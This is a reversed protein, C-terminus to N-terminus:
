KASGTGGLKVKFPNEDTDNSAIRLEASRTGKATPKFQVKFTVAAGPTLKAKAPQTLIFDKANKGAASLKLGTLDTNGANRITFTLIRGAKGVVATGFAKSSNGSVLVTKVPQEVTIEPALAIGKGTAAFTFPNDTADNSAISITAARNGATTPKFTVTFTTSAGPILTTVLPQTNSFDGANTGTRSISLGTLNATGNNTITFVQPTGAVGSSVSGFDVTSTGNNIVSVGKTVHIDSVAVENDVTLDVPTSTVDGALNTIVVTYSGADDISVNTITLTPTQSGSIRTDDALNVEDKRWQYSLGEGTATVSFTVTNGVVATQAAPPTSISALSRINIQLDATGTGGTNTASLTVTSTGAASPTGSILGTATDVSLGGPLGTAGFSAPAGTATIQYSFPKGVVGSASTASTIEPPAPLASVVLAGDNSTASGATNTVVVNYNGSDAPLLNSLTLTPSNAGSINPGDVLDSTGKRWQYSLWGGTATVTFTAGGNLFANANGPHATVQPTAASASRATFSIVGSNSISFSGVRNVGASTIRFLDLSTGSVGAGFNGEINTWQSVSGFDSTGPTAVQYNYSAAGSFNTQLTAVSSNATAASSRYGGISNLTSNLQSFTSQRAIDGLAPWPLPEPVASNRERSGFIIASASSGIGFAGWHLNARTSWNAGYTASLDSAIDGLSSLSISSGVSVGSLQSYTAVKVLYSTSAGEGDSARFGIFIDGSAPNPVNQAHSAQPTFGLAAALLLTKLRHFTSSIM